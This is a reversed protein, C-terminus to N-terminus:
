FILYKFFFFQCWFHILLCIHMSNVFIYTIVLFSFQLLQFHKRKPLLVLDPPTALPSSSKMPILRRSSVKLFWTCINILDFIFIMWFIAQFFVWKYRLSLLYIFLPVICQHSFPHSIYWSTFTVAQFNGSM